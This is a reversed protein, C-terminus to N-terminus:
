HIATLLGASMGISQTDGRAFSYDYAPGLVMRLATQASALVHFRSRTRGLRIRRSATRGCTFGSCDSGSCSSQKRSLTWPKTFILNTDWETSNGTFFPSVGDEIELWNEIPTTEVAFNPAFTAAGGSLNRNKAALRSSPLLTKAKPPKRQAALSPCGSQGQSSMVFHVSEPRANRAPFARQPPYRLVPPGLPPLLGEGRRATQQQNLRLFAKRRKNAIMNLHFDRREPRTVGYVYEASSAERGSVRTSSLRVEGVFLIEVPRTLRRRVDDTKNELTM